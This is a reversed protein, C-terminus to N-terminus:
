APTVMQPPRMFAGFIWLIPFFIVFATLWGVATMILKHRTKPHM